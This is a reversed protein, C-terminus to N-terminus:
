RGPTAPRRTLGPIARNREAREPDPDAVSPVAELADLCGRPLGNERAGALVIEKYWDFPPLGPALAEPKAAYLDAELAREGLLVEVTRREYGPGEIRDLAALQGEGLRFLAGWLRDGPKGTRFADCKGSGDGGRKHFRLVYGAVSAAGLRECPGLRREIRAALLNSGYGFYIM